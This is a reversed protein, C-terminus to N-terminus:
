VALIIAAASVAVLPAIDVVAVTNPGKAWFIGTAAGPPNSIIIYKYVCVLDSSRLSLIGSYVIQPKSANHHINMQM